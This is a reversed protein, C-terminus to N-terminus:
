LIVTTKKYGDANIVVRIIGDNGSYPFIVKGDTLKYLVGNIEAWGNLKQM